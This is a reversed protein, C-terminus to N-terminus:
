QTLPTPPMPPLTKDLGQQQLRMREAEVMIIQQEATMSPTVSAVAQPQKQAQASAPGPFPMGTDRATPVPTGGATPRVPRGAPGPVLGGPGGVAGGPGPPLAAVKVGDKDFDLTTITGYNSVKVTGAKENIELVEMEGERQGEVLTLSQEKAPEGPKTPPTTKLLACKKGLITTIGTLFVKPSAPPPPNIEPTPPKPNLGFVNREVIRQYPQGPVDGYVAIGSVWLVACALSHIVTRQGHKM